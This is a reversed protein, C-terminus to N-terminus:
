LNDPIQQEASLALPLTEAHLTTPLCLDWSGQSSTILLCPHLFYIIRDAQLLFELM